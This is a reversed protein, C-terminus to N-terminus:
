IIIIDGGKHAAHTSIYIIIEGEDEATDGGKHTAHTSIEKRRYIIIYNYTAARIPPTLQFKPIQSLECRTLPDSGKHTAHTSILIIQEPFVNYMDGGNHTASNGSIKKCSQM